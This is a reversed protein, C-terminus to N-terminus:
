ITTSILRDLPPAAIASDAKGIILGTALIAGVLWLTTLRKVCNGM